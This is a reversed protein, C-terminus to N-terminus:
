GDDGFVEKITDFMIQREHANMKEFRRRYRQKKRKIYERKRYNDGWYRYDHLEAPSDYNMWVHETVTAQRTRTRFSITRWDKLYDAYMESWYGSIMQPISKGVICKLFAEHMEATYEYEFIDRKSARTYDLYPPDHYVFVNEPFRFTDMFVRGDMRVMELNPIGKAEWAAIVKPNMDVGIAWAAPLINRYIGDNGWHTAIYGEHRPVQNILTQYVGSGNKSGPYHTLEVSM